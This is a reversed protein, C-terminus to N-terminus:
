PGPVAALRGSSHRASTTARHAAAAELAALREEHDTSERLNVAAALVARFAAVRAAAPADDDDLVAMVADTARDLLSALRAAAHDFAAARLEALAAKGEDSNVIRSVSERALGLTSAADTISLGSSVAAIVETIRTVNRPMEHSLTLPPRRTRARGEAWESPPTSLTAVKVSEIM